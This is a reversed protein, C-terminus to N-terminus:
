KRYIPWLVWFVEKSANQFTQFIYKVPRRGSDVLRSLFHKSFRVGVCVVWRKCDSYHTPNYSQQTWHHYVWTATAGSWWDSNRDTQLTRHFIRRCNWHRLRSSSVPVGMWFVMASTPPTNTHTSTLRNTCSVVATTKSRPTNESDRLQPRQKVEDHGRQEIGVFLKVLPEGLVDLAVSLVLRGDVLTLGVGLVSFLFTVMPQKRRRSVVGFTKWRM